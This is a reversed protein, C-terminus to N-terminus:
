INGYLESWIKTIGRNGSLKLTSITTSGYGYPDQNSISM